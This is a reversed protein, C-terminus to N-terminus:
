NSLNLNNNINISSKYNNKNNQENLIINNNNPRFIINSNNVFNKKPSIINKFTELFFIGEMKDVVYFIKDSKYKCFLFCPFRNISLQKIIDNGEKSCDIVPFFIVDNLLDEQPEKDIINLQILLKNQTELNYLIMVGKNIKLSSMFVSPDNILGRIKGEFNRCFDINNKTINLKSKFFSFAKNFTNSDLEIQCETINKFNPDNFYLHSNNPLTIDRFYLKAAENEDWNTLELFEIAIDENKNGVIKNFNSIKIGLDDNIM